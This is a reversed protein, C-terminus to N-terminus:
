LPRLKGAVNGTAYIAFTWKSVDSWVTESIHSSLLLFTSSALLWSALLLKRSGLDM